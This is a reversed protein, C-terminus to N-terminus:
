KKLTEYGNTRYFTKVHESERYRTKTEEGGPDYAQAVTATLPSAAVAVAVSSAGGLAGFFTRRDVGKSGDAAM